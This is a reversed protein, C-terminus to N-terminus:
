CNLSSTSGLNYEKTIICKLLQFPLCYKERQDGQKKQTHTRTIIPSSM